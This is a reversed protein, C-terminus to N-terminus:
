LVTQRLRHVGGCRAAIGDVQLPLLVGIDVALYNLYPANNNNIRGGAGWHARGGETIIQRIAKAIAFISWCHTGGGVCRM